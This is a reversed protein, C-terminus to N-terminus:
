EGAIHDFFRRLLPNSKPVLDRAESRSFDDPTRDHYRAVFLGYVLTQAYLDAFDDHSLDHLIESKFTHYLKWIDPYRETNEMMERLNDRIRRAKGGMIEALHSARRITDIHSALFDMLRDKFIGFSEEHFSLISDKKTALVIPEGYRIGNRYFRFEIGNTLILKAYGFYRSLQESKEIKELGIHM